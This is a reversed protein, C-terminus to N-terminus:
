AAQSRRGSAVERALKLFDAVSQDLRGVENALAGSIKAVDHAARGSDNAVTNVVTANNTVAATADTVTQMTRAIEQTALSQQETAASIASAIEVVESTTQGIAFISHLGRDSKAQIDAIRAKIQETADATQAALNKVETAVVGFGRGHDGARVAEINANLALTRTQTSINAILEVVEAIEHIAATLETMADGAVSSQQQASRSVDLARRTQAAIESASATLQESASSVTSVSASTEAAQQTIAGSREQTETAAVNMTKAAGDLVQVESALVGSVAGVTRDFEGIVQSFGSLRAHITVVAENMTQAGRAFTGALGREVIRRHFEGDRVCALTATAERVFADVLDLARNLDDALALMEGRDRTLVLRPELDGKAASALVASVAKLTARAHRLRAMAVGACLSAAGLAAADLIRDNFLSIIAGALAVIATLRVLWEAQSLSSSNTM